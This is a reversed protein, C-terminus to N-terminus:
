EGTFLLLLLVRLGGSVTENHQSNVTRAFWFTDKSSKTPEFLELFSYESESINLHIEIWEAFVPVASSHAKCSWTINNKM